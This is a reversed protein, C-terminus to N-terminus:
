SIVATLVSLGKNSSSQPPQHLWRKSVYLLERFAASVSEAVTQVSECIVTTIHLLYPVMGLMSRSGSINTHCM